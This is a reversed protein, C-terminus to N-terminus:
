VLHAKGMPRVKYRQEGMFKYFHRMGRSLALGAFIVGVFLEMQWTGEEEILNHVGVGILRVARAREWHARLLEIVTQRILTEDATPSRLTTQCTMLTFDAYRLKLVVTRALYGEKAMEAAVRVSMETLERELYDAARIDREFTNEQSISKTKADTVIPSDDWGHSGESLYVGHKGFATRLAEMPVRALDGITEVNWNPKSSPARRCAGRGSDQGRAAARSIGGGDGRACRYVRATQGYQVCDQVRSTERSRLRARYVWNRTFGNRFGHAVAVGDEETPIEIYAEDISVQEVLPSHERLLNM